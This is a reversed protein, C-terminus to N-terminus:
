LCVEKGSSYVSHAEEMLTKSCIMEYKLKYKLKTPDTGKVVQSAPALTIEFLLDNYLAKPYSIGHDTLIEDHLRIHYKSQHIESLKNEASVGTEKKQDGM